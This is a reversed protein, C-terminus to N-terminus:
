WKVLRVLLACTIGTFSIQALDHPIYRLTDIYNEGGWKLFSLFTPFNHVIDAVYHAIYQIFSVCSLEFSMCLGGLM